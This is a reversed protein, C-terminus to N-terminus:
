ELIYAWLKDKLTAITREMQGVMQPHFISSMKIRTDLINQFVHWFRLIFRPDRDSVIAKLVGYLRVIEAIYLEVLYELSLKARIHLFHM